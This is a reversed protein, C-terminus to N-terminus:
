IHLCVNVCLNYFQESIEGYLTWTKTENIKINVFKGILEKDGKFLFQRIHQHEELYCKKIKEVQDM